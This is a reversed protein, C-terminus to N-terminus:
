KGNDKEWIAAFRTGRLTAYGALYTPRFGKMQMARAVNTLSDGDLDYRAVWAPGKRKEWVACFMVQELVAMGSIAVPRYGLNGMRSLTDSFSGPTLGWKMEWALDGGKEWITAYRSITGSIYSSITRPRYGMGKMQRALAELGEADVGYKVSWDPGDSKYWLDAFGQAGVLDYGSLGVPRFGEKKLDRGRNDLDLPTLDYDLRWAPGKVKEWVVAFRSFEAVNYGTICTPRYGADRLLNARARVQEGTLNFDLIWPHSTPPGATPSLTALACLFIQASM